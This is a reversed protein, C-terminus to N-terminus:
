GGNKGHNKEELRAKKMAMLLWNDDTSISLDKEDGSALALRYCRLAAQMDGNNELYRDGATRYLRARQGESISAIREIIPAPADPDNELSPVPAPPVVGPLNATQVEGPNNEVVLSPAPAVPAPTWLHMTGLGAAYCAALAAVYGLRKLRRRRRLIVTTQQLVDQRRGTDETASYRTGLFREIADGDRDQQENM